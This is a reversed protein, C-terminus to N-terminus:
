PVFLCFNRTPTRSQHCVHNTHLLWRPHVQVLPSLPVPRTVSPDLLAVHVDYRGDSLSCEAPCTMNGSHVVFLHTRVTQLIQFSGPRPAALAPAFCLYVLHKTSGLADPMDTSCERNIAHVPASQPHHRRTAGIPTPHHDRGRLIVISLSLSLSLSFSLSITLPKALM